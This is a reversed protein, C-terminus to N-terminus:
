TSLWLNYRTGLGHVPSTCGVLELEPGLRCSGLQRWFDANLHGPYKWVAIDPAGNIVFGMGLALESFAHRMRVVTLGTSSSFVCKEPKGLPVPQALSEGLTATCRRVRANM